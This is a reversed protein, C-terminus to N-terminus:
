IQFLLIIYFGFGCVLFLLAYLLVFLPSLQTLVSLLMKEKRRYYISLIVCIIMSVPFCLLLLVSTSVLVARLSFFSNIAAEGGLAIYGIANIVLWISPYVLSLWVCNIIISVVKVKGLNTYKEIYHQYKGDNYKKTQRTVAVCLMLFAIIAALSIITESM